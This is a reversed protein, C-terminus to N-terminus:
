GQWAFLVSISWAHRRHFVIERPDLRGRANHDLQGSSVDTAGAAPRPRKAAGSLRRLTEKDKRLGTEM